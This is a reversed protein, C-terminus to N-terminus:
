VNRRRGPEKEERGSPAREERQRDRPYQNAFVIGPFAAILLVLAVRQLWGSFQGFDNQLLRWEHAVRSPHALIALAINGPKRGGAIALTGEPYGEASIERYVRPADESRRVEPAALVVDLEGARVPSELSFSVERADPTLTGEWTGLTHEHTRAIALLVAPPASESVVLPIHVTARSAERPLRFTQSVTFHAYVPLEDESGRPARLELVTEEVPQRAVWMVSGGLAIIWLAWASARVMRRARSIGRVGNNGISGPMSWGM